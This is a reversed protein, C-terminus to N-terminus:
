YFPFRPVGQQTFYIPMFEPRLRVQFFHGKFNKYFTTYPGIIAESYINSLSIWGGKKNEKVIYHHLFKPANPTIFFLDCLHLM